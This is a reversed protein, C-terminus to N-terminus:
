KLFGWGGEASVSEGEDVGSAVPAGCVPEPPEDGAGEEDGGGVEGDGEEEEPEPLREYDGDIAGGAIKMLAADSLEVMNQITVPGTNIVPNSGYREHLKGALWKRAEMANRAQASIRSEDDAISVVEWAMKQAVAVEAEGMLVDFAPYRRRWRNVVIPNPVREPYLEHLEAVSAGRAVELAIYEGVGASFEDADALFM